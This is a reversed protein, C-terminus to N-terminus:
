VHARGIEILASHNGYGRRLVIRGFQAVVKLAYDLIDPHSNECDVLVAVRSDQTNNHHAGVTM